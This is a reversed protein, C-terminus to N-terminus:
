LRNHFILKLFLIYNFFFYLYISSINCTHCVGTEMVETLLLTIHIADRRVAKVTGLAVPQGLYGNAASQRPEFGQGGRQYDSVRYRPTM